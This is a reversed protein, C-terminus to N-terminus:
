DDKNIQNLIYAKADLFERDVPRDLAAARSQFNALSTSAAIVDLIARDFDKNENDERIIGKIVAIIARRFKPDTNFYNKAKQAARKNKDDLRAVSFDIIEAPTANRIVGGSYIKAYGLVLHRGNPDEVESGDQLTPDTLIGYYISDASFDSELEDVIRAVEGSSLRYVAKVALANVSFM